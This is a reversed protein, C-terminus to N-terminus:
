RVRGRPAAQGKAAQVADYAAAAQAETTDIGERAQTTIILGVILRKRQVPDRFIERYDLRRHHAM